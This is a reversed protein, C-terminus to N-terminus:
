TVWMSEFKVVVRTTTERGTEALTVSDNNERDCFVVAVSKMRCGMAQIAPVQNMRGYLEVLPLM